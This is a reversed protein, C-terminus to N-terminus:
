QKTNKIVQAIKAIFTSQLNLIILIVLNKELQSQKNIM